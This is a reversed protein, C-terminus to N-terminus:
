MGRKWVRVQIEPGDGAPAQGEREGGREVFGREQEAARREHVAAARAEVDSGADRRHVSGELM